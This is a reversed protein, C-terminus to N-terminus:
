PVYYKVELVPRYAAAANGSSFKLYDANFDGNDDRTFRLRFQTQGRPNVAARAASALTATLWGAVPTKSLSGAASRTAPAQFDSLQLVKGGSFGGRRIDFLLKGHTLFPNTGMRGAPRLKLTGSVVTAKDPLPATDFALLARYQRNTTDDGVRVTSETSNMSGGTGINEGSELVWGDLSGVSNFTRQGLEFAGLDCHTGQPRPLGNQSANSAPAAACVTDDGVDLAPSGPNLLFTQTPGGYGGM